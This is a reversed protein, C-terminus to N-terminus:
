APGEAHACRGGTDAVGVAERLGRERHPHHPPHDSRPRTWRWSPGKRMETSVRAAVADFYEWCARLLRIKRDIETDDMPDPELGSPSFSIGWFDTSGTGARDEAVTLPGAADFEDAMAAAVAIPRYRERYSALVELALEPTKAGGPELGALRGCVGGGEEEQAWTGRRYSGADRGSPVRAM